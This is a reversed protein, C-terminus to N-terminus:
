IELYVLDEFNSPMNFVDISKNEFYKFGLNKLFFYIPMFDWPKPNDLYLFTRQSELIQILDHGICRSKKLEIYNDFLNKYNNSKSKPIFGINQSSKSLTLTNSNITIKSNDATYYNKSIPDFILSSSNKITDSIHCIMICIKNKGNIFNNTGDIPDVIISNKIKINEPNTEESIINLFNNIKFFNLLLNEVELDYKTYFSGDDKTFIENDSLKGHHPLIIEDSINVLTSLLQNFFPLDIM